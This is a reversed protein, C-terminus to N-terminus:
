HRFLYKSSVMLSHLGGAGARISQVTTGLIKLTIIAIKRRAYM